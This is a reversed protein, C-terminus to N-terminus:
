GELDLGQISINREMQLRFKKTASLKNNIYNYIRSYNM